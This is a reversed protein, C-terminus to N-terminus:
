SQAFHHKAVIDIGAYRIHMWILGLLKKRRWRSGLRTLILCYKTIEFWQLSRLGSKWGALQQSNGSSLLGLCKLLGLLWESLLGNWKSGIRNCCELYRIPNNKCNSSNLKNIFRVILPVSSSLKLNYWLSLFYTFHM